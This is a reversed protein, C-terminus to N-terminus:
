HSNLVLDFVFYLNPHLLYRSLTSLDRCKVLLAGQVLHHENPVAAVNTEM